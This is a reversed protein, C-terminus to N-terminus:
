GVFFPISLEAYNTADPFAGDDCAIRWGFRLPSTQDSWNTDEPRDCEMISRHLRLPGMPILEGPYVPTNVAYHYIRVHEGSVYECRTESTSYKDFQYRAPIKLMVIADRATKDGTNAIALSLEFLHQGPGMGHLGTETRAMALLPRRVMLALQKQALDVEDVAARVAAKTEKLTDRTLRIQWAVGLLTIIGIADALVDM